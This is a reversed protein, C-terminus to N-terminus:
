VGRCGKSFWFVNGCFDNKVKKTCWERHMALQSSSDFSIDWLSVSISFHFQFSQDTPDDFPFGSHFASLFISDFNGFAFSHPAYLSAALQPSFFCNPSPHTGAPPRNAHFSSQHDEKMRYAWFTGLNTKWGLKWFIVRVGLCYKPPVVLVSQFDESTSHFSTALTELDM